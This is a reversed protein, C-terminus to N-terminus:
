IFGGSPDKSNVEEWKEREERKETMEYVIVRSIVVGTVGLYHSGQSVRQYVKHPTKTLRGRGEPEVCLHTRTLPQDEKSATGTIVPRLSSIRFSTKNTNGCGKKPSRKTERCGFVGDRSM